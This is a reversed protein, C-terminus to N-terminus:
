KCIYELGVREPSFLIEPARTKENTLELLSGDPLIYPDKVKKTDELYKEDTQSAPNVSCRKEKIKRVLEFESSTCFSYGSRRLLLMLYETIDRGGLDVRGAAHQLSYGDYVPVCHTVGDGSDL